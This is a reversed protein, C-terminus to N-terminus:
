VIVKAQFTSRAIGEFYSYLNFHPMLCTSTTDTLLSFLLLSNEGSFTNHQLSYVILCLLPLLIHLPFLNPLTRFT